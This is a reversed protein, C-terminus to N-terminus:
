FTWAISLIRWDVACKDITATKGLFPYCNQKCRGCQLCICTFSKGNLICFRFLMKWVRWPWALLITSYITQKKRNIQLKRQQNGARPLYKGTAHTIESIIKLNRKKIHISTRAIRTKASVTVYVIVSSLIFQLRYHFYFQHHITTIWFLTLNFFFQDLTAVNFLLSLIPQKKNINKNMLYWYQSPEAM